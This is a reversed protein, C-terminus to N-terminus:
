RGRIGVRKMERSGGEAIECQAIADDGIRLFGPGDMWAGPNAYVGGGPASEMASAHTHGFVYLDLSHDASLRQLAVQALGEGGDRPRMGRSTHSTGRALASAWDPHLLHRFAWIALPNRLVSRLVRYGADERDRLGDGHEILTEWGGIRGRWPGVHYEVGAERLVDGGWCDHNGAIWVVRVGSEAAAAIAALARFGVRPMVSRWEFWFDFLDGNIVVSKAERRALEMLALIGREPDYQGDGWTGSTGDKGNKGKVGVHADSFVFCPAALAPKM